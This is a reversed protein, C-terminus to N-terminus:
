RSHVLRVHLDREGFRVARAVIEQQGPAVLQRGLQRSAPM